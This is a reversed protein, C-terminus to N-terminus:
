ALGRQTEHVGKENRKLVGRASFLGEGPIWGKRLWDRTEVKGGGSICSEKGEENKNRKLGALPRQDGPAGIGRQRGHTGPGKRPDNNNKPAFPWDRFWGHIGAREM